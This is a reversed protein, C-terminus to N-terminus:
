KRRPRKPTAAPAVVPASVSETAAGDEEVTVGVIRKGHLEQLVGVLRPEAEVAQRLTAARGEDLEVTSRRM